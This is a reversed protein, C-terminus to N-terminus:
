LFREGRAGVSGAAGFVDDAAIVDVFQDEVDLAFVVAGYSDGALAAAIQPPIEVASFEGRRGRECGGFGAGSFVDSGLEVFEIGLKAHQLRGAAVLWLPRQRDGRASGRM